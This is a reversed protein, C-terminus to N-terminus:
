GTYEFETTIATCNGGTVYTPYTSSDVPMLSIPDELLFETSSLVVIKFRKNNIQDVGRSVPISGNLDTIRVHNGTTYGHAETTTVTCPNSNTVNSINSKLSAQGM